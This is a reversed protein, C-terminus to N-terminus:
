LHQQLFFLDYAPKILGGCEAGEAWQISTKNLFPPYLVPDSGTFLGSYEFDVVKIQGNPAVLINNARLDGHVFSNSHLEHLAGKINALITTKLENGLSVDAIGEFKFHHLTAWPIYEM